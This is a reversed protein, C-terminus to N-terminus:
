MPLSLLSISCAHKRSQFHLLENTLPVSIKPLMTEEMSAALLDDMVSLITIKQEMETVVNTDDM